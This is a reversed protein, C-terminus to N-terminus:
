EFSVQQLYHVSERWKIWPMHTLSDSTISANTIDVINVNTGCIQSTEFAHWCIILGDIWQICADICVKALCRCFKLLINVARTLVSTQQIWLALRRVFSTCVFIQSDILINSWDIYAPLSQKKIGPIFKQWSLFM